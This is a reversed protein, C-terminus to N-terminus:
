FGYCYFPVFSPPFFPLGQAPEITTQPLDIYISPFAASLRNTKGFQLVLFSGQQATLVLRRSPRKEFFDGGRRCQCTDFVAVLDAGPPSAKLFNSFNGPPPVLTKCRYRCGDQDFLNREVRFPFNWLLDFGTSFTDSFPYYGVSAM